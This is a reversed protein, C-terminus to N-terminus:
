KGMELKNNVTVAKAIMIAVVAFIMVTTMM